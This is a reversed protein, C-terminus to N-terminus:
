ESNIYEEKDKNKYSGENLFLDIKKLINTM